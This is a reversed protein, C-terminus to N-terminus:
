LEVEVSREYAQVVEPRAEWTNQPYYFREIRDKLNVVGVKFRLRERKEGSIFTM